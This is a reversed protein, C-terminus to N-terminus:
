ARPRRALGALGRRISHAIRHDHPSRDTSTVPHLAVGARLRGNSESRASSRDQGWSGVAARFRELVTREIPVALLNHERPKIEDFRETFVRFAHDVPVDVAIKVRIAAPDSSM